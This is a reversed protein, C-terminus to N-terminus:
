RRSPSQARAEACAERIEGGTEGQNLASAESDGKEQGTKSGAEQSSKKRPLRGRAVGEESKEADCTKKGNRSKKGDWSKNPKAAKKTAVRKPRMTKAAVGKKKVSKKAM